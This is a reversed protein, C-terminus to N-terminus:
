KNANLCYKLPEGKVARCLEEALKVKLDLAAQESYWGMHPSAIFNDLGILPNDKQPPECEFVDCAAGALHGSKLAEYLAKEQVVGGRTVNVLFSGKKMLSLEKEGIAGRSSELPSHLSLVDVSSLVEEFDMLEIWDPIIDNKTGKPFAPDYAVIKAGLGHALQAFQRGIRGVGIVGIVLKSARFIPVSVSYDWSGRTMERDMLKLKRVLALMMAFAQTAVEETSYDPVNCVAVGHASAAKIDINDVGVGYRVVCKLNPLKEFVSDTMKVYQVGLIKAESLNKVLDEETKCNFVVLEIGNKKCVEEEQDMNTHDCDSIYIKEM